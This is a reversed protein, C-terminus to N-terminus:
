VLGVLGPLSVCRTTDDVDLFVGDFGRKSSYSVPRAASCLQAGDSSSCTLCTAGGAKDKYVHFDLDPPEKGWSLVARVAKSSLETAPEVAIMRLPVPSPDVAAGYAELDQAALPLVMSEFARAAPHSTDQVTVFCDLGAVLWFSATLQWWGNVEVPESVARGLVTGGDACSCGGAALCQCGVGCSAALRMKNLDFDTTGQSSRVSLAVKVELGQAMADARECVWGRVVGRGGGGGPVGGSCRARRLLGGLGMVVCAEETSAPEPCDGSRKGGSCPAGWMDAGGWAAAPAGDGWHVPSSLTSSKAGVWAAERLLSRVVEMQGRGKVRALTGGWAACVDQAVEWAVAGDPSRATAPQPPPVDGPGFVAPGFYRFCSGMFARGAGGDCPSATGCGVVDDDIRLLARSETADNGNCVRCEGPPAGDFTTGVPCPACGRSASATVSIQLFRVTLDVSSQGVYFRVYRAPLGHASIRRGSSTENGGCDDFDECKYLLVQEGAFLGSTSAEVRVRSHARGDKYYMWLTLHQLPTIRGVDAEVYVADAKVYVEYAAAAGDVPLLPSRAPPHILAHPRDLWQTLSERGTASLRALQLPSASFSARFTVSVAPDRVDTLERSALRGYGSYGRACTCNYTRIPHLCTAHPDCDHTNTACEDIDPENNACLAARRQSCSGADGMRWHGDADVFGCRTLNSSTDNFTAQEGPAWNSYSDGQAAGAVLHAETQQALSSDLWRPAFVEGTAPNYGPQTMGIWLGANGAFQAAVATQASSRVSALAGGREECRRRAEDFNMYGDLRKFCQGDEWMSGLGDCQRENVQAVCVEGNGTYGPKCECRASTGLGDWVCTAQASCPLNETPAECPDSSLQYCWMAGDGGVFGGLRQSCGRAAVAAGDTASTTGGVRGLLNFLTYHTHCRGKRGVCFNSYGQRYALISCTHAPSVALLGPEVGGAGPEGGGPADHLLVADYPDAACGLAQTAFTYTQMQFWAPDLFALDLWGFALGVVSRQLAHPPLEDLAVRTLNMKFCTDRRSLTGGYCWWYAEIGCHGSCGDGGTRGGDDCEEGVDRAGNGCMVETLDRM